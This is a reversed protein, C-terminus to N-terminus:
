LWRNEQYWDVTARMGEELSRRPACGLERQALEGSVAWSEATAELIKDCNFANPKGRWRSIRESLRAALWATPGLLPLIPAFPRNLLKRMMRGLEAYDPYEPAAAFYVGRGSTLQEIADGNSPPLRSGAEAARLIVDLTDDVHILSLAPTRWGAVPHCRAYKITRFMPLMELNRPGFVIGPRVITIPLEKAFEAVALEGALKSRGYNSVPTPVDTEHRLQGRPAPGSAAISSVQILAPRKQQAACARAVNRAGEGNAHLMDEPRLACTMAALHFVTEVGAAAQSLTDHDDLGGVVVEAGLRRLEEVTEPRRVYLRVRKGEALLREALHMGIFGNAGTILAHVAPRLAAADEAKTWHQVIEVARVGARNTEVTSM